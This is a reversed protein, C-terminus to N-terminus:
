GIDALMWVSDEAEFGHKEYFSRARDNSTETELFIRRLGRAQMEAFVARIMESGSGAGRDRVYLEDLLVDRGGSEVSWSWTIVAYGGVEAILVVGHDDSTLLPELGARVVDEDWRHHDVFYFERILELLPDLDELGARRIV